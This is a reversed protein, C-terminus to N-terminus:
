ECAKMYHSQCHHLTNCDEVGGGGALKCHKAPNSSILCYTGSQTCTQGELPNCSVTQVNKCCTGVGGAGRATDSDLSRPGMAPFWVSAGLTLLAIVLLVVQNRM